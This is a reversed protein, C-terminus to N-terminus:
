SIFGNFGLNCISYSSYYLVQPGHQNKKPYMWHLQLFYTACNGATDPAPNIGPWYLYRQRPAEESHLEVSLQQVIM